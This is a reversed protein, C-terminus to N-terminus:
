GLERAAAEQEAGVIGEAGLREVPVDGAARIQRGGPPAVGPGVDEDGAVLVDVQDILAVPVDVHGAREVLGQGAAPDTVGAAHAQVIDGRAAVRHGVPPLDGVLLHLAAGGGALEGRGGADVDRGAATKETVARAAVDVVVDELEDFELLDRGRDLDLR